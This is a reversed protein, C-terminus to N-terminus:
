KISSAIKIGKIFYILTETVYIQTRTHTLKLMIMFNYGGFVHCCCIFIFIVMLYNKLINKQPLNNIEDYFNTTM